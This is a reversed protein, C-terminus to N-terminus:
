PRRTKARAAKRKARERKEARRAKKAVHRIAVHIGDAGLSRIQTLISDLSDVAIALLRASELTAAAVLGERSMTSDDNYSLRWDTQAITTFHERRAM